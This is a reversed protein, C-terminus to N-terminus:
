FLYYFFTLSLFRSLDFLRLLLARLGGLFDLPSRSLEDRDREGSYMSETLMFNKLKSLDRVLEKMCNDTVHDHILILEIGVQESETNGL